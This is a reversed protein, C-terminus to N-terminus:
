VRVTNAWGWVERYGTLDQGEMGHFNYVLNRNRGLRIGRYRLRRTRAKAPKIHETCYM